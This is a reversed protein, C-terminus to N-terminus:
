FSLKHQLFYYGRLRSKKNVRIKINFPLKIISDDKCILKCQIPKKPHYGIHALLNRRFKNPDKLFHAIRKRILEERSHGLKSILFRNIYTIRMKKNLIFFGINSEKLIFKLYHETWMNLNEVM